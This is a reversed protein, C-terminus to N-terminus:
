DQPFDWFDGQYLADQPVWLFSHLGALEPPQLQSEWSQTYLTSSAFLIAFRQHSQGQWVPLHGWGEGSGGMRVAWYSISGTSVKPARM